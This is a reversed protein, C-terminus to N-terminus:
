AGAANGRPRRAPNGALADSRAADIEEGPQRMGCPLGPRPRRGCADLQRAMAARFTQTTSSIRDTDDLGVDIQTFRIPGYQQQRGARADSMWEIRAGLDSASGRSTTPRGVVM